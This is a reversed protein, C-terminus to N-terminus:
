FIVEARIGIVTADELAPDMNPNKIWQIDPQMMLWPLLQTRYSLEIVSERDEVPKGIAQQQQKYKDGNRAVALALGLQDKDRGPFM